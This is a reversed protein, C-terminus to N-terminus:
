RYIDGWEVKSFSFPILRSEAKRLHAQYTSFSLGAKRALDKVDVRRPIEYYGEEIALKIAEKQRTTLSPHIQAISVDQIKGRRIHRLGAGRTKRLLRYFAMLNEKNKSAISWTERGDSGILIPKTHIINHQYIPKTSRPEELLIVLFDGNEELFHVRPNARAAAVFSRKNVEAGYITCAFYVLLRTREVAHSVPYTSITVAHDKALRGAPAESGDFKIEAFWM